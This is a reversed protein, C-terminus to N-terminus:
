ILAELYPHMLRYIRDVKAAAVLADISSVKPRSSRKRSQALYDRLAAIAVDIGVHRRYRFCDAVTKAPDTIKVQVGEVVRTEVGYTLALGSARIVELRPSKIRPRRAHTEILVWVASPLETTFDHVELASLLCITTHPSRKSVEALSHLESLETDAAMYTGRDLRRLFGSDCLRKLYARPIQHEDLDRARLLGKSALQM